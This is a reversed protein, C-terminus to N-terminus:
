KNERAKEYTHGEPDATYFTKRTVTTDIDKDPVKDGKKIFAHALVVIDNKHYFFLLRYQVHEHKARLEYIDDRLTDVSPRRLDRGFQKLLDIKDYCNVFGKPDRKRLETLWEVVPSIGDTEQYFVVRTLPM